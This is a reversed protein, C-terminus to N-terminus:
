FLKAETLRLDRIYVLFDHGIPSIALHEGNRLVLGNSTMFGLWADFGYTLYLSPFREMYPQLFQRAKEVTAGGLMDLQKLGEIQSGFIRNYIFEHGARLQSVAVARLLVDQKQDDPYNALQSRLNGVITQLVPSGVDPLAPSAATPPVAVTSSGAELKGVGVIAKGAEQREVAEVEVGFGKFRKVALNSFLGTLVTTWVTRFRLALFIITSPWAVAKAFGVIFQLSNMCCYICGRGSRTCSTREFTQHGKFVAVFHAHSNRSLGSVYESTESARRGSLM